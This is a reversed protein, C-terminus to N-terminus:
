VNATIRNWLRCLDINFKVATYLPKFDLKECIIFALADNKATIKVLNLGISGGKDTERRVNCIFYALFACDRDTVAIGEYPLLEPFVDVGSNRRSLVHATLSVNHSDGTLLYSSTTGVKRGFTINNYSGACAEIIQLDEM